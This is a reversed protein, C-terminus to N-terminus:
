ASDCSVTAGSGGGNYGGGGPGSAFSGDTSGDAGTPGTAANGAKDCYSSTTGRCGRSGAHRGCRWYLPRRPALGGAKSARPSGEEEAPQQRAVPRPTVQDAAAAGVIIRNSLATGGQRIDSAGGSRRNRHVLPRKVGAVGNGGNADNNRGQRGLRPHPRKGNKGVCGVNVQLVEGPTVAFTGKARV